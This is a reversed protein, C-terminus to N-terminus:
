RHQKKRQLAFFISAGFLGVVFAILLPVGWSFSRGEPDMPGSQPLPGDPSVADGLSENETLLPDEASENLLGEEAPSVTNDEPVAPPLAPIEPSIGQESETDFLPAEDMSQDSAPLDQEFYNESSEGSLSFENEESPPRVEWDTAFTEPLPNEDIVSFIGTGPIVATFIWVGETSSPEFIGGLREWGESEGRFEWLAPSRVLEDEIPMILRVWSTREVSEPETYQLKLRNRPHMVDFRDVFLLSEGGDPLLEFTALNKMRSRPLDTPPAIIQPPLIEGSFLLRDSAYVVRTNKSFELFLRGESDALIGQELIEGRDIVISDQTRLPSQTVAGVFAPFLLSWVGALLFFKKM